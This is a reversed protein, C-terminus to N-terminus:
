EEKAGTVRMVEELTTIGELCKNLAEERLTKMGELQAQEKILHEQSRSLVLEKIKPTLLLIECVGTRGKYGTNLCQSCGKGRYLFDIEKTFIGKILDKEVLVKEKCNPCIKRLLRQSLISILSDCILFPQAGMDVLRVVAGAATTTHVTSLVLHGTLASKIAIDLTEYDRMEGIMIIDPDQRLISRLSVAFTLSVDPSIQVQNIGEINYEIPDEVTIINKEPSRVFNLISYMTTTKGCGTPGCVLIMGHPSKASRKLVELIELSFGLKEIDLIVKSRDLIRLAVKEGFSSPLVSVRFDVEKTRIKAVFRGDQPLRHEAINLNSIVKIRSIIGQHVSKTLRSREQLVGDVRFRVRVQDILPEILIDSAGLLVADELLTDIINVIPGEKSLDILEESSLFKEKKKEILELELREKSFDEIIREIEREIKVPYYEEIARQIAEPESLVFNIKFGTLSKIGDLAFIDLPDAMAVTVTDEIKSIPIIRYYRALDSPILKLIEEPIKFRTLELLPIELSEVLVGLLDKEKILKLEVLVDSLRKNERKQFELARDLDEKTILSNKILIETIREKLSVM